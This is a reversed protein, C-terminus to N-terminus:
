QSSSEGSTSEVTSPVRATSLAASRKPTVRSLCSASISSAVRWRETSLAASRSSKASACLQGCSLSLALSSNTDFAGSTIAVAPQTRSPALM